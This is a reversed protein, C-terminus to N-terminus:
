KTAVTVAAGAMAVGCTRNLWRMARTSAIFRRARDAVLVYGAFVLTLVVAIIAAMELFGLLTLHELDMLTPLLALYFAMTKPNGMSLALGAGFLELPGRDPGDTQPGQAPPTAPDTWLRYALYLLYAAGALRVVVFLSGLAAALAALGLCAAALWLMDGLALAAIFATSGARGRSLTRAVIAIVAPGPSVAALTLIGAFFALTGFDM